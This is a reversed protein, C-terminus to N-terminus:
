DALWIHLRTLFRKYTRKLVATLGEGLSSVELGVQPDVGSFFKEVALHWATAIGKRGLTVQSIMRPAVRAFPWEHALKAPGAEHPRAGELDVNSPVSAFLRVRAFEAPFAERLASVHASVKLGM